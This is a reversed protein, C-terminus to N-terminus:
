IIFQFHAAISIAQLIFGLGYTITKYMGLILLLSLALEVAGLIMVASAKINILFLQSFIGATLDPALLKDIAWLALFLGLGIRLCFLGLLLSTNKRMM